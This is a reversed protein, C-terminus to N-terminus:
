NAKSNKYFYVIVVSARSTFAEFDGELQLTWIADKNEKEQRVTLNEWDGSPKACDFHQSMKQPPLPSAHKHQDGETPSSQCIPPNHSILIEENISIETQSSHIPFDQEKKKAPIPSQSMPIGENIPRKVQTKDQQVSKCYEQGEAKSNHMEPSSGMINKKGLTGQPLVSQTATLALIQLSSIVFLKMEGTSFNCM